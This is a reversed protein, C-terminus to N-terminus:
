SLCARCLVQYRSELWSNEWEGRIGRESFIEQGLFVLTFLWVMAVDVLCRILYQYVEYRLADSDDLWNTDGFLPFYYLIYLAIM